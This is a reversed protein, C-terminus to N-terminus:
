VQDVVTPYGSALRSTAQEAAIRHRVGADAFPLRDVRGVQLIGTRPLLAPRFIPVLVGSVSWDSTFWYDAKVMFNGQQQGFYLIDELDDANLNNTPNFQDAVGWYVLQQGVTLDLGDIFLDRAQLYLRHAEFRYPDIRERRSLDSLDNVDASFGYLVFDIDAKAVIDGYTATLRLGILNENRDVGQTFERRDFWEGVSVDHLRFRLDSRMFGNWEVNLEDTWSAAELDVDDDDDDTGEIPGDAFLDDDSVRGFADDTGGPTATGPPSDDAFLEDDSVAFDDDTPPDPDPDPSSETPPDDDPYPQAVVPHATFLLASGLALAGLPRRM